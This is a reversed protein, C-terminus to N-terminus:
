KAEAESIIPAFREKLFHCQDYQCVYEIESRMNAILEPSINKQNQLPVIQGSQVMGAEEFHMM